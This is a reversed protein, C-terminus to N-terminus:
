TRGSLASAIDMRTLRLIPLVASLVAVAFACVVAWVIVMPSITPLPIGFGPPMLKPIQRALAAALGVGLAAGLICPLSSELVVMITVSRDSFGITKLTAFEAFRERVSEAIGNGTLFLVMFMGALAIGHTIKKIDLGGFDNGSRALKETITQMPTASNAFAHDIREAVASSAAPDDALLDVENVKGQDALPKAKDIYDYNGFIFGNGAQPIDDVIALVKFDWSTKGDARKIQKSIMTFTDGIKKNWRQAQMRSMVIGTRDKWVLNWQEPMVGYDGFVSAVNQDVMLVFVQNKPDQVYGPLFNLATVAKVGPIAAVQRAVAVPVGNGGFRPWTFIRDARAKEAVADFTANLGIMLGFLTFAVTVSLLTLIARTPKRMVAAWILPLYQM